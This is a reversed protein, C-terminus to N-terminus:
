VAHQSYYPISEPAFAESCPRGCVRLCVFHPIPSLYSRPLKTLHLDFQSGSSHSPDTRTSTCVARVDRLTHPVTMSHMCVMIRISVPSSDISSSPAFCRPLSAFTIRATAVPFSFCVPSPTRKQWQQECHLMQALSPGPHRPRPPVLPPARRLISRPFLRRPQSVTERERRHSLIQDRRVRDDEEGRGRREKRSEDDTGNRLRPGKRSM